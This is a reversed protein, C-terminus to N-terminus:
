CWFLLFLPRRWCFSCVCRCFRTDAAPAMGAELYTSDTSSVQLDVQPELMHMWFDEVSLADYKLGRITILLQVIQVHELAGAADSPQQQSPSGPINGLAAQGEDTLWSTQDQEEDRVHLAAVCSIHHPVPVCM